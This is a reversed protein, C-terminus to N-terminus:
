GRELTISNRIQGDFFAQSYSIAHVANFDKCSFFNIYVTKLKDLTHIVINSTEISQVASVGVLHDAKGPRHEDWTWFMPAGTYPDRARVMSAIDCLGIVYLELKEASNQDVDCNYLDLILEKGYSKM